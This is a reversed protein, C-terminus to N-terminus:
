FTNVHSHELMIRIKLSNFNTQFHLLLGSTTVQGLQPIAAGFSLSMECSFLYSWRQGGSSSSDERGSSFQALTERQQGGAM